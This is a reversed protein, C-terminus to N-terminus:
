FALQLNTLTLMSQMSLIGGSGELTRSHYLTFLFSFSGAFYFCFLLVPTFFTNKSLKQGIKYTIGTFLIFWIVPLIKFFTILSPIGMKDLIFIIFDLLINYGSLDSGSFSPHIFPYKIFSVASVALHWIADRSHVGWFYLGCKNQYCYYSGSPVIVLMHLIFGSCIVLSFLKHNKIWHSLKKIM